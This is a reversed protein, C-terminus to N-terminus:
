EDFFESWRTSAFAKKLDAYNSIAQALPMGAQKYTLPRVPHRDLGLFEQVRVMEGEHNRELEEYVVEIRPHDRFLADYRGKVDDALAFRHRCEEYDLFVSLTDPPAGNAETWRNTLFAKRLSLFARLVNWRKIHIVRVDRHEELYSWVENRPGSEAHYYFLKFGVARITGPFCRFVETELFAAPTKQSLSILRPTSLYRDHAPFEWGISDAFRFLEGFAVTQPHSNLLGRLFNSGSRGEGLIIFRAYDRHGGRFGWDLALNRLRIASRGLLTRVPAALRVADPTSPSAM